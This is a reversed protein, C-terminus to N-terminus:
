AVTAAFIEDGHMIRTLVPKPNSTSGFLPFARTPETSFPVATGHVLGRGLRQRLSALAPAVLYSRKPLQHLIRVAACTLLFQQHQGGISGALMM